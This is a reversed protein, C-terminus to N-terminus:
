TMSRAMARDVWNTMGVVSIYRAGTGHYQDILFKWDSLIYSSFVKAERMTAFKLAFVCDSLQVKEKLRVPSIYEKIPVGVRPLVIAIGEIVGREIPKVLRCHSLSDNRVLSSIDSSHLLPIGHRSNISEFVPLGGRVVIPPCQTRPREEDIAVESRSSYEKPIWRVVLSNARAGRFTSNSLSRIATTDYFGALLKRAESDTASYLLSEPVIAIAGSQPHFTDFSRLIHAMAVSSRLTTGAFSASVSKSKSMSFPPNLTLLDCHPSSLVAKTRSFVPGDLVDAVSLTWTPKKARLRRIANRDRDVGVCRIDQFVRQAASLLNGQGCATDIVVQPSNLTARANFILEIAVDPPTYYQDLDM